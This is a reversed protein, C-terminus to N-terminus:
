ISGTVTKNGLLLNKVEIFPFRLLKHKRLARGPPRQRRRRPPAWGQPPSLTSLWPLVGHATPDPMAPQAPVGPDPASSSSLLLERSFATVAFASTDTTGRPPPTYPFPPTHPSWPASPEAMPHCGVHKPILTFIVLKHSFFASLLGTLTELSAFPSARPAPSSSFGTPSHDCIGLSSLNGCFPNHDEPDSRIKDRIGGTNAAAPFGHSVLPVHKLFLALRAAPIQPPPLSITSPQPTEAAPTKKTKAKWTLSCHPVLQMTLLLSTPIIAPCRPARRAVPRGPATPVLVQERSGM